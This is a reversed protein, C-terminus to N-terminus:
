KQMTRNLTTLKRFYSEVTLDENDQIVSLNGSVGKASADTQLVYIDQPFILSCNDSFVNCLYLLENYM